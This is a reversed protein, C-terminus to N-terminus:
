RTARPKRPERLKTVSQLQLELQRTNEFRSAVLSYVLLLLLTTTATIGLFLLYHLFVMEQNRTTMCYLLHGLFVILVVSYLPLMSLLPVLLLKIELPLDKDRLIKLIQEGLLQLLKQNAKTQADFTRVLGSVPPSQKKESPDDVM